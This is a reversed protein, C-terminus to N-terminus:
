YAKYSNKIKLTLITKNVSILQYESEGLRIGKIAAAKSINQRYAHQPDFELLYLDLHIIKDEIGTFVLRCNNITVSNDKVLVVKDKAVKSYTTSDTNAKTERSRQFLENDNSYYVAFLAISILFLIFLISFLKYKNTLPMMVIGYFFNFCYYECTLTPTLPPYGGTRHPDYRDVGQNIKIRIQSAKQQM